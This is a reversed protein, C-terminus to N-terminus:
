QDLQKLLEEVSRKLQKDERKGKDAPDENVLIDPVAPGNEMNLGSGKVYWARFPLRVYSGDILGVGSTSIVAGFTPEGVLTGLGLTKYAHSFIEANSYSNRNCLAISPKTWSTLPLREGFPYHDVYNHNEQELSKVAGRPVCYAHQKVNLVAMLYDTTWGGGNHRVDIVIGEKGHGAVALEREFREFSVWNMGEIHLYGLRGNSYKEVLEKKEENWAKYLKDGMRSEPRIVVERNKGDKGKVDLYLQNGAENVFLSYFNIDKTIPTGNVALIIDDKFLKSKIKDAPSNPLITTIQVGKKLPKIDIGLLGTTEKQTETRDDGGRLGMHSANVQGLMLNFMDRFDNYTSAQMAWPKYLKRLNEWDQGHFNPDYFGNDIGRWAEEFIQNLEDTYDITMKAKVPLTEMKTGSTKMRTLKGRKVMYLYEGKPDLSIGYPSSNGKTIRTLETGDWKISYLDKDAKYTNRGNGNSVFYFKEGKKDIALGTEHGPLGSVQVIREHIDEFDIVIDNVKDDKKGNKKEETDDETWDDKTKEWDEKNLWVFWADYDNNNRVSRFALKRGDQSWVPSNDKRPHMSINVPEKSNDAAQIYVEHNGDLDNMSYALWKSDPSFSVSSPAGWSDVLVKENKIKANEVEAVIMKGTGRIFSIQKQDAAVTLNDEDEKTDTLQKIDFKLTKYLNTETEDASQAMFIDYQGNRDSTFLIASDNLWVVSRERAPSNTVRVTKSKEKNNETVFIEGHFVLASFKGNPSVSYDSMRSTYTKHIIPDFRYDTGIQVELKAPSKQGEKWTYIDTRKEFAITKGDASIALYRIGDDKFNTLATFDGTKQGNDNLKAEFINYRGSRSSLFLLTHKNKWVPQFDNGKFKTIQHYEKTETNYVWINKNAPGDYAERDIRCGGIVFAIFRGDPSEVSMSGLADMLLEPTGGKVNVVQNEADWEIQNYSRFTNFLLDGNRTFDSLNDNASHWTHREPRGGTADITYIDNNGFRNSNFAITKGDHSWRPHAEYAEHITLRYPRQQNIDMTWIDGQYSFAVQSGDPSLAPFRVFPNNESTNQSFGTSIFSLIILFFLNRKQM